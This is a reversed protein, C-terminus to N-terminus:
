KFIHKTELTPLRVNNGMPIKPEGGNSSNSGGKSLDLPQEGGVGGNKDVDQQVAAVAAANQFTRAVNALYWNHTLMTAATPNYFPLHPTPPIGPVPSASGGGSLAAVALAAMSVNEITTM